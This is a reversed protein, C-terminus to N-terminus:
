PCHQLFYHELTQLKQFIKIHITAVLLGVKSKHLIVTPQRSVDDHIQSFLRTFENEYKLIKLQCLYCGM